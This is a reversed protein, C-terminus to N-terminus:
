YVKYGLWTRKDADFLWFHGNAFSFRFSNCDNPVESPLEIVATKRGTIREFLYIKNEKFNYLGYEADEIDTYTLTTNFDEITEAPIDLTIEGDEEGSESDVFHLKSDEKNFWAYQDIRFNLTLVAQPNWVPLEFLEEYPDETSLLGDEKIEYSMIDHYEYTNGEIFAYTPNYWLGRMDRGAPISQLNVGNKDFVEIPFSENGAVLTYYKQYEEIWAVASGNIGDDALLKLQLSLTPKTNIEKLLVQADATPAISAYLITLLAIAMAKM